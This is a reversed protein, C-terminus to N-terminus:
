GIAAIADDLGEAVPLLQDVGATKLVWRIKTDTVVLAMKGGKKAKLKGGSVLLRIGLSGVFVVNSLDVIVHKTGSIATEFEEEIAQVSPADLRGDLMIHLLDDKIGATTIKM